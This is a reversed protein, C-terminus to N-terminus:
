LLASAAAITSAAPTAQRRDGYIPRDPERLSEISLLPLVSMHLDVKVTITVFCARDLDSGTRRKASGAAIDVVQDCTLKARQAEVARQADHRPFRTPCPLPTPNLTPQGPTTLSGTM